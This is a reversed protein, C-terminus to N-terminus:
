VGICFKAIEKDQENANEIWLDSHGSNKLEEDSISIEEKNPRFSPTEKKNSITTDSYHRNMINKYIVNRYPEVEKVGKLFNAIRRFFNRISLKVRKMLSNRDIMYERFREALWEENVKEDSSKTYISAEKYLTEREEKTLAYKSVIHFAEHYETGKAMINSLTIGANSVMGWAKINNIRLLGNRMSVPIHPLVSKLWEEAAKVDGMEEESTAERLMFASGDNDENFIDDMLSSATDASTDTPPNAPPNVLPTDSEKPKLGKIEPRDMSQLNNLTDRLRQASATIPNNLKNIVDDIYANLENPTRFITGEGEFFKSRGNPLIIGLELGAFVRTKSGLNNTFLNRLVFTVKKGSNLTRTETKGRHWKNDAKDFYNRTVGTFTKNNTLDEEAYNEKPLEEEDVEQPTSIPPNAPPTAPPNNGKLKNNYNNIEQETAYRCKSANFYIGDSTIFVGDILGSGNSTDGYKLTYEYLYEFANKGDSSNRAIQTGNPSYIQINGSADKGITYGSHGRFTITHADNLVNPKTTPPRDPFKVPNGKIEEFKENLPNVTFWNGIANLSALNTTLIGNDLLTKNYNGGNLEKVSVQFRFNKRLLWDMILQASNTQNNIDFSTEISTKEQPTGKINTYVIHGNSDRELKKVLLKGTNKDYFINYDGLYLIQRLENVAAMVTDGSTAKSLRDCIEEIKKYYSTDGYKDKSYETNNFHKINLQVPIKIKGGLIPIAAFLTYAKDKADRVTKVRELVKTGSMISGNPNQLFMEISEFLIDDADRKEGYQMYGTKLSNVTTKVDSIYEKSGKDKFEKILRDKLPQTISSNYRTVQFVGVPQYKDGVKKFYLIVPNGQNDICKPDIGLYLTDGVELKGNDVYEQMGEQESYTAINKFGELKSIPELKGQRRADLDFWSLPKWSDELKQEEENLDQAQAEIDTKIDQENNNISSDASDYQPFKEEPTAPQPVQQGKNTDTVTIRQAVEFKQNDKLAQKVANLTHYQIKLFHKFQSNDKDDEKKYSPNITFVSKYAENDQSFANNLVDDSSEAKSLATKLMNTAEAKESDSLESNNAINIQASKAINDITRNEKAIASGENIMEENAKIIDNNSISSDSTMENLAKRYESITTANKLRNKVKERAKKVSDDIAKAKSENAKKNAKEPTKLAADLEKNYDKIIDNLKQVDELKKISDNVTLPNSSKKLVEKVNSAFDNDGKTLKDIFEQKSVTNTNSSTSNNIYTEYLSDIISQRRDTFNEIQLSANIATELAPKDLRFEARNEIQQKTEVYRDITSLINEANENIKERVFQLNENNNDSSFAGNGENNKIENVISQLNEDLINKAQTAIEKLYDLQGLNSFMIVDSIVGADKFTHYLFDNNNIAAQNMKNTLNVSRVLGEYRDKITGEKLGKNIEDIIAQRRKYDQNTQRMEGALNLVGGEISVPSQWKGNENHIGRITPTGIVSTMFGMMFDTATQKDKFAESTAMYLSKWMGDVLERAEPNYISDNFSNYSANLDAAKQIIDQSVEEIGESTANKIFEGVNKTRQWAKSSQSLLDDTGRRVEKGLTNATKAAGRSFLKGWELINSLTLLVTNSGFVFNGAENADEESDLLQQRYSNYLAQREKNSTAQAFRKNYEDTLVRNEYTLKDNKNQIAEMSAEGLSGVLAPMIVQLAKPAATLLKSMGMGPILMGESYGLNQVLDAWFMSTGMQKWISMDNYDKTYYNRNNEQVAQQAEFMARNVDNDWIRSLETNAMADFIGYLFGVTGQVATTGAIALNNVLARTLREKTTEVEGMAEEPTMEQNIANAVSVRKLLEEDPQSVDKGVNINRNFLNDYNDIHLGVSPTQGETAWRRTPIIGRDDIQEEQYYNPNETAM